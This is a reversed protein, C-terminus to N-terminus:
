HAIRTQSAFYRILIDGDLQHQNPLHQVLYEKEVRDSPLETVLGCHWQLGLNTRPKTILVKKKAM